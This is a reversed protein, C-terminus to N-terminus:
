KEQTNWPDQGCFPCVGEVKKIEGKEKHGTLDEVVILEGCHNCVFTCAGAGGCEVSLSSEINRFPFLTFFLNDESNATISALVALGMVLTLMASKFYNKKM